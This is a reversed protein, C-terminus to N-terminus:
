KLSRTCQDSILGPVARVHWKQRTRTRIIAASLITVSGEVTTVTVTVSWDSERIRATVPFQKLLKNLDRKTMFGFNQMQKNM